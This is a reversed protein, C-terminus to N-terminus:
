ILSPPWIRRSWAHLDLMSTLFIYTLGIRSSVGFGFPTGVISLFTTWRSWLGIGFPAIGAIRCVERRWATMQGVGIKCKLDLFSCLKPLPGFGGFWLALPLCLLELYNPRKRLNLPINAMIPSTGFSRPQCVRNFHLTRHKDWLSVCQFIHDITFDTAINIKSIWGNNHLSKQCELAEM